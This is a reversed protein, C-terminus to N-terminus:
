LTLSGSPTDYVNPIPQIIKDTGDGKGGFAKIIEYAQEKFKARSDPDKITKNAEVRNIEEQIDSIARNASEQNVDRAIGKGVVSAVATGAIYGVGAGVGGGTGAGVIVAGSAITAQLTEITAIGYPNWSTAHGITSYIKSMSKSYAAFDQLEAISQTQGNEQLLRTYKALHEDIKQACEAPSMKSQGGVVNGCDQMAINMMGVGTNLEITGTLELEQNKNDTIQVCLDEEESTLDTDSCRDLIQAESSVGLIGEAESILIARESRLSKISEGLANNARRLNTVRDKLTAMDSALTDAATKSLQSFFSVTAGKEYKIDLPKVLTSPIDVLRPDITRLILYSCLVLLLGQLAQFIMKKGENKGLFSDTTVYKFGGAVIVLVAAVASLAIILNFIYRVYDGFNVKEVLTNEACKQTGDNLCPLPELLTYTAVPNDQPNSSTNAATDAHTISPTVLMGVAIFITFVSGAITLLINKNM